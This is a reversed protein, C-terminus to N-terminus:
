SLSVKDPFYVGNATIVYDYLRYRLSHPLLRTWFGNDVSRIWFRNLFLKFFMKKLGQPVPQKYRVPLEPMLSQLKRHAQAYQRLRLIYTSCTLPDNHWAFADPLFYFRVGARQARVCLEYDEADNLREDFGNLERFLGAPVSFNAATFFASDGELLGDPHGELEKNWKRSLSAKYRLIDSTTEDVPEELGGTVFAKEHTLQWDHHQKICDPLPLMDDDFFILLDSSAHAAAANRVKARGGNPQWLVKTRAKLSFDGDAILEETGDKSGDILVIIEDPLLTQKGLCHLLNMIKGAGNYTPILVSITM